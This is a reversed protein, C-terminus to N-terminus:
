QMELNRNFLIQHEEIYADYAEKTDFEVGVMGNGVYTKSGTFEEKYGIISIKTEPNYVIRYKKTLVM